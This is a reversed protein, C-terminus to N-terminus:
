TCVYCSSAFACGSSWMDVGGGAGGGLLLFADLFFGLFLFGLFFAFPLSSSQSLLGLLSQAPIQSTCM